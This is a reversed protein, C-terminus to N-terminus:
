QPDGHALVARAKWSLPARVSEVFRFLDVSCICSEGFDGSEQAMKEEEELTAEDDGGEDDGEYEAEEDKGGDLVELQERQALTKVPRRVRKPRPANVGAEGAKRKSTPVPEPTDSDFLRDSSDRFEDDTEMAASLCLNMPIRLFPRADKQHLNGTSGLLYAAWRSLSAAAGKCWQKFCTEIGAASVLFVENNGMSFQTRFIKVMLRCLVKALRAENKNLVLVGYLRGTREMM